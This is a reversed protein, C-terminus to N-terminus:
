HCLDCTEHIDQNINNILRERVAVKRQVIALQSLSQKKNKKISEYSNMLDDLENQLQKQQKQLEEKSQQQQAPSQMLAFSFLFALLFMKKIM